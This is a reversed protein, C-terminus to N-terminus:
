YAKALYVVRKAPAGCWACREDPEEDVDVRRGRIEYGTADKIEDACEKRGCFSARIIKGLRALEVLEDRNRATVISGELREWAKRRLNRSIERELEELREVLKDDPVKERGRTDRRFLTVYGGRVEMRGVEIRVPVGLMEWRYYKDGPTRDSDDLLVDFGAARLIEEVRKSKEDVEGEVDHYPIPVIVVDHVSFGFPLVLGYRDGHTIVMAALTRSVGVGLCTTYPHEHGGHEDLFTVDFARSFNQGLYHTTAIQLVHRNPLLADYAYSNEAGPFKDYPEREIVLFALALEDYVRRAIGLDEEIQREADEKRAFADHTEIWLFGRARLLPRTAKTEYRYVEVGQYLKMPLDTHSHMWLSLMPYFATESTPRLVLREELEEGGAEGVMYVQKEFGKIHESEMKFYSYPIVVPFLVPMHGTRELEEEFMEYIRKVMRMANPRYVIFGKVGYRADVLETRKLIEDYWRGFEEEKDPLPAEPATMTM